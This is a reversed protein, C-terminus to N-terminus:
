RTILLKLTVTVVKRLTNAIIRLEGSVVHVESIATTQSGQWNGSFEVLTQLVTHEQTM